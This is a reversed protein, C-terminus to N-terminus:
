STENFNVLSGDSPIAGTLFNMSVNFSTLKALKDLSPPISGSLTNSSLDRFPFFMNWFYSYDELNVFSNM